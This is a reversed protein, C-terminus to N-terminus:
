RHEELCANLKSYDYDLADNWLAECNKRQEFNFGDPDLGRSGEEHNPRFGCRELQDAASDYWGVSLEDQEDYAIATLKCLQAEHGMTTLYFITLASAAAILAMVATFVYFSRLAKLNESM